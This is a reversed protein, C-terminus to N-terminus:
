INKALSLPEAATSQKRRSQRTLPVRSGTSMVDELLALQSDDIFLGLEGPETFDTQAAFLTLSKLRDDNDREM